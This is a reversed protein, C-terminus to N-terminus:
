ANPRMRGPDELLSALSQPGAVVRPVKNQAGLKGRQEMWRAFSGPALLRVQPPRLGFDDDRHAAYDANVRKLAADLAAAFAGAEASRAGDPEGASAGDPAYAPGDLEVVFLHGARADHEDPAVPAASYEVVRCGVARAAETVAADLEAGILHEGAVSLSWSTRGTILIRPPQRTVLRVTDGLVYSWLGSHTTLVLAYEEHTEADGIWRRDPRDTGLDCPRVFEFFIGRDLLLRMGEGDAQDAIAIFGESAAYVERTLVNSGEMWWAFRDRYPAFGVGGHVLLELEPFLNHLRDGPRQLAAAAEFFLLMWSATGSISTVRRKLALPALANMKARWDALQAMPGGPLVRGRAWIPREVAAIGSLDGARIGPALVELRTSGGLFVGPGALMRSAPRAAFHWALVDLAALRNARVMADSLPIRKTSAQTTGSSNAFYRIRGPWTAGGVRPFVPGWWQSWLQEYSCVPVHRQYEAVTRIAALGHARGFASRAGARLLEALERQQISAADQRALAARRQAAWLKLAPSPDFV